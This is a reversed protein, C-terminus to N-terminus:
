SSSRHASTEDWELRERGARLTLFDLLVRNFEAPLEEYSLHGVGSMMVLTADKFHRKLKEASSPWVAVDRDGWILLTPVDCLRPLQQELERIDANWCRLIRLAHEIAGGAILPGSYGALTGPPIRRRNGYLRALVLYHAPTVLPALKPILWAGLPSSLWPALWQGHRSWPNVPAVLILRRVRAPAAAAAMMAVAGGHSTGLVDASTLGVADMFELVRAATAALRCDLEPVRESYGVGLQDPAYVTCHQTLEEYNLRWSFSYGLLGHLLLLPPGSGGAFYRMRHGAVRAWREEVCAPM